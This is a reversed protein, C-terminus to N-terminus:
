YNCEDFTEDDTEDDTSIETDSSIIVESMEVHPEEPEKLTENDKLCDSHWCVYIFHLIGNSKHEIFPLAESIFVILGTALAIYETSCM